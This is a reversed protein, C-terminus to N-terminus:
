QQRRDPGTMQIITATKLRSAIRGDFTQALTAIDKNSTFYTPLRDAQRKNLISFLTVYAFDSEQKTRLGLDDIFLSDVNSMQAILDAETIKSGKAWTSRVKSCFTDFNINDCTHGTFLREKLLAAMAYTKGVGIGGYLYIDGPAEFIKRWYLPSIDGMSADIFDAGVLDLLIKIM